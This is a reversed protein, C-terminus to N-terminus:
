KKSSIDASVAARVGERMLAACDGPDLTVEEIKVRAEYVELLSELGEPRQGDPRGSMEMQLLGLDIRMQIKDRGDDGAIIRVQAAEDPDHEWGALIPTIDKSLRHAEGEQAM